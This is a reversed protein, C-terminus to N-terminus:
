LKYSEFTNIHHNTKGEYLVNQVFLSTIPKYISIHSRDSVILFTFFSFYLSLLPFPTPATMRSRAIRGSYAHGHCRADHRWRFKVHMLVEPHCLM